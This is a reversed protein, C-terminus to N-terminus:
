ARVFRFQSRVRDVLPVLAHARVGYVVPPCEGSRLGRRHVGERKRQCVQDDADFADPVVHLKAAIPM